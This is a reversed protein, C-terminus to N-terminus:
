INPHAITRVKDCVMTTAAVLDLPAYDAVDALILYRLDLDLNRSKEYGPIVSYRKPVLISNDM